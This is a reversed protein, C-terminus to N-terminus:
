VLVTLGQSPIPNDDGSQFDTWTITLAGNFRTGDARYLIDQITTLAPAAASRGCTRRGDGGYAVLRSYCVNKSLGGSSQRHGAVAFEAPVVRRPTSTIPVDGGAVLNAKPTLSAM